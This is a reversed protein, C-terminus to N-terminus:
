WLDHALTAAIVGCAVVVLTTFVHHETVFKYM